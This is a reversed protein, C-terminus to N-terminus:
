SIILLVAYTVAIFVALFRDPRAVGVSKIFNALDLSIKSRRFRGRLLDKLEVQFLCLGFFSGLIIQQVDSM